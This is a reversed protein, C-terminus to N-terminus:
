GAAQGQLKRLQKIRAKADAAQSPDLAAVKEYAAIAPALFSSDGLQQYATLAAAVINNQADVNRPQLKAAKKFTAIANKYGTTITAAASQLASQEETANSQLEQVLPDSGVALKGTPNFPQYTSQQLALLRQQHQAAATLDDGAQQLQLQGLRDLGAGDKPKLTTYRSWAFIADQVRGKSEYATALEKWAQAQAPHELTAKLSKSISPGNSGSHFIGNFLQDLGGQGSGVGLFAFTIAFLM